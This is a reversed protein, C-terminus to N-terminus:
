LSNQLIYVCIGELTEAREREVEQIDSRRALKGYTNGIAKWIDKKGIAPHRDEGYCYVIHLVEIYNRLADEYLSVADEPQINGLNMLCDGKLKLNDSDSYNEDAKERAGMENQAAFIKTEIMSVADFDNHFGKASEIYKEYEEKSIDTVELPNALYDLLLGGIASEEAGAGM